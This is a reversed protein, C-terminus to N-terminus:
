WFSTDTEFVETITIESTLCGSMCHSNICICSTLLLKPKDRLAIIGKSSVYIAIGERHILFLYRVRIINQSPSLILYRPNLLTRQYKLNMIKKPKTKLEAWFKKSNMQFEPYRWSLSLHHPLCTFFLIGKMVVSNWERIPIFLFLSTIMFWQRFQSSLSWSFLFTFVPSSSAADSKFLTKPSTM